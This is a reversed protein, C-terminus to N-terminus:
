LVRRRDFLEELLLSPNQGCPKEREPPEQNRMADTGTVPTGVLTSLEVLECRRFSIAMGKGPTPALPPDAYLDAASMGRDSVDLDTVIPM